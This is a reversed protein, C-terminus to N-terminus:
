VIHLDRVENLVTLASRLVKILDMTAKRESSVTDNETLLYDFNAEKYLEIILERQAIQKSQNVLFTMTTKPVGDNINKRVVDFYSMLLKKIIETEMKQRTTPDGQARIFNPLQPLRIADKWNTVSNIPLPDYPRGVNSDLSSQPLQKDKRGDNRIGLKYKTWEFLGSGKRDKLAAASQPDLASYEQAKETITAKQYPAGGRLQNEYDRRQDEQMEEDEEGHDDTLNEQFIKLMANVGGVFDPHSTNIFGTEIEVLNKIMQNTPHLCKELVREMVDFIANQFNNFRTLEPITVQLVCKRLEEHAISACQLGPEELRRIQQKVLSEFALEPVFLAMKVGNANQIATRIDEDSITEFPDLNTITKNFIEFFIYNLRSGGIFEDTSHHMFRGELIETYSQAFKSIIHLILAGKNEVTDLLPDGYKAMDMEKQTLLTSIQSRIGPLEEKIHNMLSNSLLKALSPIGLKDKMHSFLTHSNLFDQEASLGEQVTKKATIDAPSRCMVGAYGKKLPYLKGQLVDMIQSDLDVLDLKSVVGVTRYGNPDVDRALRLSDSNALDTNAATIALIIANPVSIYQLVIDRIQLEIDPPQGEVPIKTLGPLDVLTLDVVKPSTIKLRIPTSSINKTDGLLRNTENVIEQKIKGFDSYVQGEKHLFEGYEGADSNHRLQLILPRRTVIGTGRPLFDRGVIAELVSTKGSSQAGVVVIQPLDIVNSSVKLTAFIDQLKNVIPILQDM